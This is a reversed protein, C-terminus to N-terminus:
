LITSHQIPNVRDFVQSNEAAEAPDAFAEVRLEDSPEGTFPVVFNGASDSETEVILDSTGTKYAHITRAAASGGGDEVTGAIKVINLSALGSINGMVIIDAM